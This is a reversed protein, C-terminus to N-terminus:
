KTPIWANRQQNGNENIEVTDSGRKSSQRVHVLAGFKFKAVKVRNWFLQMRMKARDGVM